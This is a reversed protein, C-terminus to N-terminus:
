LLSRLWSATLYLGEKLKVIPTWGLGKIKTIDPRRRRPDDPRPATYVIPSNSGTVEKVLHALQLISVEEDSGVNYVEGGCRECTALLLLARVTDSVYTFSRTQTGDGHITIPEGRLAQFLFKTVVRAYSSDPDLRPGYTNFIRAVVVDVGYERHFAM